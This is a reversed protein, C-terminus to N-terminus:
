TPYTASPLGLLDPSTNQGRRRLTKTLRSQLPQLCVRQTSLAPAGVSCRHLPVSFMKPHGGLTLFYYM